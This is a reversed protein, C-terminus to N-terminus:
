STQKCCGWTAAGRRSEMQVRKGNVKLKKKYGDGCEDAHNYAYRGAYGIKPGIQNASLGADIMERIATKTENTMSITGKKNITPVKLNLMPPIIELILSGKTIYMFVRM